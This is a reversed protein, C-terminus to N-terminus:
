TDGEPVDEGLALILGNCDRVVLERMGYERLEPGELIEAGNNKLDIAFANLGSVRLYADYGGAVRGTRPQTDKAALSFFIEIGDREVIAFVPPDSWYGAITFGYVDRYYEATRVIDAVTFQPIISKLVPPEIM